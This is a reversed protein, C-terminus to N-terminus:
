RAPPLDEELVVLNVNYATEGEDEDKYLTGITVGDVVVEVSMGPRPPAMVALKESGLLRRLTTQLRTIESATLASM